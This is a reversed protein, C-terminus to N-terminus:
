SGPQTYGFVDYDAMPDASHNYWINHEPHWVGLYYMTRAQANLDCEVSDLHQAAPDAVPKNDTIIEAFLDQNIERWQYGCEIGSQTGVRLRYYMDHDQTTLLHPAMM